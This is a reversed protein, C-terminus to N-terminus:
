TYVSCDVANDIFVGVVFVLIEFFFNIAEDFIYKGIGVYCLFCKKVEIFSYVFLRTLYINEPGM